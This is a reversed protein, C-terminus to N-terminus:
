NFFGKKIKLRYGNLTNNEIIDDYALKRKVKSVLQRTHGKKIKDRWVYEEIVDNTAYKGKYKILIDMLKAEKKTLQITKKGFKAIKEDTIYIGSHILPIETPIQKVSSEIKAIVERIDFPKKIYDNCGTSYANLITKIDIDGSLIFINADDKVSKIKKLIEFGNINPINIDLLYLDYKSSVNDLAIKGDDFSTVKHNLVELSTVIMDNLIEDDEVLFIKM